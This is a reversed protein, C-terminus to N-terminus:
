SCRIRRVQMLLRKVAVELGRWTGKFVVGYAGQGLYSTLELASDGAEVLEDMVKALETRV